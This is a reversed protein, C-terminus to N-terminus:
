QNSGILKNKIKKINNINVIAINLNVDSVTARLIKNYPMEVNM